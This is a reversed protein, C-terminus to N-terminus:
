NNEPLVTVYTTCLVNEAGGAYLAKTCESLTAGTTIIDDVLLINKNHLNNFKYNYSFASKVNSKRKKRPLLHQTENEKIKILLPKCKINLQMAIYKALLQSQNYGRKYKKKKTTPVYTIFDINGIEDLQNKFAKNIASVMPVAMQEAYEPCKNFKLNYVAYKYVGDYRFPSVNTSNILKTVINEQQLNKKCKDCAYADIPIIDGCYPCHCPFITNYIKNLVSNINM